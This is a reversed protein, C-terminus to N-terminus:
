ATQTLVASTNPHQALNSCSMHMVSLLIVDEFLHLGRRTHNVPLLSQGADYLGARTATWTAWVLKVWFLRVFM